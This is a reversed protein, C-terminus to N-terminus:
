SAYVSRSLTFELVADGESTIDVLPDEPFEVVNRTFGDVRGIEGQKFSDVTLGDELLQEEYIRRGEPPTNHGMVPLPEPMWGDLIKGINQEVILSAQRNWLKSVYALM